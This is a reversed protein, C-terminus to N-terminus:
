YFRVDGTASDVEGLVPIGLISAGKGTMNYREGPKQTRVAGTVLDVELGLCEAIFVEEPAVKVLRVGAARLEDLEQHIAAIRADCVALFESIHLDTALELKM